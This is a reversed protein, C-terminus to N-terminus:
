KRRCLSHMAAMGLVAFEDVCIDQSVILIVAITVFLGVTATTQIFNPYFGRKTDPSHEAEYTAAGCYECGLAFGQLLRLILVIFRAFM